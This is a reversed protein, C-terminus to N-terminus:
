GNPLELESVHVLHGLAGIKGYVVEDDLSRAESDIGSQLGTRIAYMLCAPNGDCLGWSKGAIRDWWDELLYQEGGVPLGNPAVGASPKIRVVKGAFPHPTSHIM